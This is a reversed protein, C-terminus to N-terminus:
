YRGATQAIAELSFPGALSLAGASVILMGSGALFERRSTSMGWRGQGFRASRSEAAGGRTQHGSARPLVDHLSVDRWEHGRPDSRRHSEPQPRAPGQREHDSREPLARVAAGAGRDLRATGSASRRKEGARRADHDRGQRQLDADRLLA